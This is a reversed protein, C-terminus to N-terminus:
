SLDDKLAECNPYFVRIVDFLDARIALRGAESTALGIAAAQAALFPLTSLLKNSLM